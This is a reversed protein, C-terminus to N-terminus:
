HVTGPTAAAPMGPEAAQAPDRPLVFVRPRREGDTGPGADATEATDAAAFLADRAPPMADPSSAALAADLARRKKVIVAVPPASDAFWAALTNLPPTENARPPLTSGPLVDDERDLQM